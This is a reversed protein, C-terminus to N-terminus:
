CSCRRCCPAREDDTLVLHAGVRCVGASCATELRCLAHVPLKGCCGWCWDLLLFVRWTTSREWTCACAGVQLLREAKEASGNGEGPSTVSGRYDHLASEAARMARDVVLHLASESGACCPLRAEAISPFRSHDGPM